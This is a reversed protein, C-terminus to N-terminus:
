IYKNIVKELEKKPILGVKKEMPKGEKFIMITPVSMVEYKTALDGSNEINVKCVKLKGQKEKAIEDITPLLARCPGCWEAWFDVLVPLKSKIVEEEFNKSNVNIDM